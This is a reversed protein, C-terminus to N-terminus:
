GILHFRFVRDVTASNNHTITFTNNTVDRTSIYIATLESAANATLPTFIVQTSEGIRGEALTVATTASGASLTVTGTNNLKGDMIKDVVYSITRVWEELFPYDLPTRPFSELSVNVGASPAFTTIVLSASPIADAAM